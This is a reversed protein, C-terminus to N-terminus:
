KMIKIFHIRSIAKAISEKEADAHISKIARISLICIVPFMCINMLGAVLEAIRM